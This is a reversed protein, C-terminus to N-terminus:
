PNSIAVDPHPQHCKVFCSPQDWGELSEYGRHLCGCLVAWDAEKGRSKCKQACFCPPSSITFYLFQFENGSAWLGWVEGVEETLHAESLSPVCLAGCFPRPLAQRHHRELAALASAPVSSLGTGWVERM